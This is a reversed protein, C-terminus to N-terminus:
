RLVYLSKIYFKGFEFETHIIRGQVRDIKDNCGAGTIILACLTGALGTFTKARGFADNSIM